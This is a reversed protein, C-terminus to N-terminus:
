TLIELADLLSFITNRDFLLEQIDVSMKKVSAGLNLVAANGANTTDLWAWYHAGTMLYFVDIGDVEYPQMPVQNQPYRTISGINIEGAANEENQFTGFDWHAVYRPKDQGNMVTTGLGATGTVAAGNGSPFVGQASTAATPGATLDSTNDVTIGGIGELADNENGTAAPNVNARVDWKRNDWIFVEKIDVDILSGKKRSKEVIFTPEALTPLPASSFVNAASMTLTGFGIQGYHQDQELGRLSM